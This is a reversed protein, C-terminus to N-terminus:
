IFLYHLFLGRHCLLPSSSVERLSCMLFMSVQVHEGVHLAIRVSFFQPSNSDLSKLLIRTSDLQFPSTILNPGYGQYPVYFHFPSIGPESTRGPSHNSGCRLNGLWLTWCWSSSGWYCIEISTPSVLHSYFFLIENMFLLIQQLSKRPCGLMHGLRNWIGEESWSGLLVFAVNGLLNRLQPPYSQCLVLVPDSHLLSFWQKHECLSHIPLQRLSQSDQWSQRIVHEPRSQAGVRTGKSQCHKARPCLHQQQPSLSLVNLPFSVLKFKVRLAEARAGQSGFSGEISHHHGSFM